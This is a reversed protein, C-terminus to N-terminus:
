RARGRPVNWLYVEWARSFVDNYWVDSGDWVDAHRFPWRRNGNDRRLRFFIVGPHNNVASELDAVTNSRKRINQRGYRYKCYLVFENARFIYKKGDQGRLTNVTSPVREIPIGGYNFAKSLRIACTNLDETNLLWHDAGLLDQVLQRGNSTLPYNDQLKKITTGSISM